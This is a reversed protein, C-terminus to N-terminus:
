FFKLIDNTIAICKFFHVNLNIRTINNYIIRKRKNEQFM